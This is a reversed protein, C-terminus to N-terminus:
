KNQIWSLYGGELDIIETAGLNELIKAALQSRVGARCYLYIPEKFNLKEKALEEFNSSQVNILISGPINGLEFEMENRVDVLQVPQNQIQTKFEPYKIIKIM